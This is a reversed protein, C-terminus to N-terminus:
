SGPTIRIIQGASIRPTGFGSGSAHFISQDASPFETGAEFNNAAVTRWSANPELVGVSFGDFSSEGGQITAEVGDSDIWTDAPSAVAYGGTPILVNFIQVPQGLIFVEGVAGITMTDVFREPSFVDRVGAGNRFQLRWGSPPIFADDGPQNDPSTAEGPLDYTSVSVDIWQFRGVEEVENVRWVRGRSDVLRSEISVDARWRIRLVVTSLPSYLVGGQDVQQGIVALGSTFSQGAWLTLSSGSGAPYLRWIRDLAM